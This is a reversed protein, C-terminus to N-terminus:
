LLGHEELKAYLTSRSVGLLRAALSRNDKAVRLARELARKEATRVELDLPLITSATEMPAVPAAPAPTPQPPVPAANPASSPPAVKPRLGVSTGPQTVFRVQRSIEARVNEERILPGSSLVVLREIFNQLQRVNGPWNQGRL